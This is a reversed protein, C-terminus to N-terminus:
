GRLFAATLAKWGDEGVLWPAPAILEGGDAAAFGLREELFRNFRDSEARMWKEATEGRPMAGMAADTPELAVLWGRGYSERKVLSPDRRVAPNARLVRADVPSPIELARGGGHLVVLPEGRRITAGARPLDVATVSPMLRQALDDLGLAVAKGGKQALWTHGPAYALDPRYMLGAVPKLGLASRQRAQVARIVLAVAAVPIALLAIAGLFLALRALVGVGFTGIAQVLEIVTQM